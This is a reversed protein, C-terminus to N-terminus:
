LMGTNKKIWWFRFCGNLATIQTPVRWNTAVGKSKPENITTLGYISEWFQSVGELPITHKLTEFIDIRGRSHLFWWFHINFIVLFSKCLIHSKNLLYVVNWLSEFATPKFVKILQGCSTKWWQFNKMFRKKWVKLIVGMMTLWKLTKMNDCDMALLSGINPIYSVFIHLPEQWHFPMILPKLYTQENLVYLIERLKVM